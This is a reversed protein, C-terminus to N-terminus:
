SRAELKEIERQLPLTVKVQGDKTIYLDVESRIGFKNQFYIGPEVTYGLMPRLRTKTSPRLGGIAGHPSVNGLSHGLTHRFFNGLNQERLYDRAAADCASGLPMEGKKVSRRIFSIAKDRAKKVHDFAEIYAPDIEDDGFYFMWTFDAYPAKPKNVRAWIDLLILTGPVLKKAGRKSPFYHVHSTNKGFAVIPSHSDLKLGHLQFFDLVAEMANYETVNEHDCFFQAMDNKIQVLKEAAELHQNLQTKTWM